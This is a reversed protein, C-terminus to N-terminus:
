LGLISGARPQHQHQLPQRRWAQPQQWSRGQPPAQTPQQDRGCFRCVIADRKIVEACYPCKKHQGSGLQNREEVEQTKSICLSHILAVLFLLTGYIWWGFYSRGKERAIAAPILGGVGAVAFVIILALFYNSDM